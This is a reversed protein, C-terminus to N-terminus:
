SRQADLGPGVGRTCSECPGPGVRTRGPTPPRVQGADRSGPVIIVTPKRLAETISAYTIRVGSTCYDYGKTPNKSLSTYHTLAGTNRRYRITPRHICVTNWDNFNRRRKVLHCNKQTIVGWFTRQAPWFFPAGRPAAVRRFLPTWVSGLPRFLQTWPM